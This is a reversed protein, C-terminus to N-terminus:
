LQVQLLYEPAQQKFPDFVKGWIAADAEIQRYNVPHQARLSPTRSCRTYQGLQAKALYGQYADTWRSPSIGLARMDGRDVWGKRTLVIDLKIARIKWDTLQVPSAVGAVVDPVYDPLKVRQDPFWSPWHQSYRGDQSPMRPISYSGYPKKPRIPIVGIGIAKCINALHHQLKDEPVLVGRFDPGDDSHLRHQGDLAQDIVKANLALKAELGLQYGDRHVLLMDWGGTEPYVTWKDGGGYRCNLHLLFDAVLEAETAYHKSM